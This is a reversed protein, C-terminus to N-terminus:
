QAPENRRRVFLGAAVLIGLSHPEPVAVSLSIPGFSSTEEDHADRTRYGIQTGGFDSTHAFDQFTGSFYVSPDPPIAADAPGLDLITISFQPNLGSRDESASISYNHGLAAPGSIAGLDKVIATSGGEDGLLQSGTEALLVFDNNAGTFDTILYGGASVSGSLVVGPQATNGAPIDDIKANITFRSLGATNGLSATTGNTLLVSSSYYYSDGIAPPDQSVRTYNLTGGGSTWTGLSNEDSASYNGVPHLATYTSPTVFNDAFAPDARASQVIGMLAFTITAIATRKHGPM